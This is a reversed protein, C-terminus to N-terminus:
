NHLFYDKKKIKNIFESTFINNELYYKEEDTMLIQKYWNFLGLPRGEFIINKIYDEYSIDILQSM